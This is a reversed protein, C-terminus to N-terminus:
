LAFSTVGGSGTLTIDPFFAARAAGINANAAKLQDEAQVVDPRTLLVTAPLGSPLNALVVDPGSIDPPLQDDAVPAGVVLELANRDQAVQTTLRAVDYRAQDAETEAQAVDLDSAVGSQLRARTLAVTADGSKQTERSISLLAQDSGYTLWDTAM